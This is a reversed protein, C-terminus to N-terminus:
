KEKGERKETTVGETEIEPHHTTSETTSAHRKEKDQLDVLTITVFLIHTFM